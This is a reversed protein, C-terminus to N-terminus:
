RCDGGRAARWAAWAEPTDLDTTARQGPLPVLRPPHAALVLRAGRDGTVRRLDPLLRAPFVVPHGAQGDASCARLPPGAPDFAAALAAFDGPELEPLDGPCLMLGEAGLGLAWDAALRVSAAMGEEADPVPLLAADLGALAQARATDPVRLTVAVPGGAARAVRALRRLVPEGAVPELLKDAGRMRRASGAALIAVALTV